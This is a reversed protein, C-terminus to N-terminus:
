ASISNKARQENSKKRKGSKNKIGPIMGIMDRDVAGLLLALAFYLVVTGVILVIVAINGRQSLSMARWVLAAVGVAGLASVATGVAPRILADLRPSCKMVFYINFGIVTMDCLLTSIPAGYINVASNSVLLYESVLKVAVGCVMSFITKGAKGQAQLVANTTTILCAPVISLALISLLPAATRAAAMDSSFIMGLVPEAFVSIGVSAPLALLLTLRLAPCVATVEGEKDGASRAASVLPVLSMAIPSILSPTLSFLPVAMNGYCSYLTNADSASIGCIALCNPILATDIVGGLSIIASSLTVPLALRILKGFFHEQDGVRREIHAYHRRDFVFKAVLLYIMSLGVGATIGFIAYAAVAEDGMGKSSAYMAGALGLVLKGVAEITQSVATPTMIQHGQFYGRLAGSICAMLVAPAIAMISFAAQPINIMYSIKEAGVLMVVTGLTGLTVFLGLATKYIRRVANKDDRAVAGSVMVAVAVPLGSTSIVFLLVYIHNAALFYAMGEVGVYGILPVKYVLGIIKSVVAAFALVATGSFLKKVTGARGDAANQPTHSM